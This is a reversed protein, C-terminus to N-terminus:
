DEHLRPWVNLGIAAQELADVSLLNVDSYTAKVDIADTKFSWDVVLGVGALIEVAQNVFPVVQEM